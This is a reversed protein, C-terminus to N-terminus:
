RSLFAGIVIGPTVKGTVPNFSLGLGFGTRLKLPPREVKKYVQAGDFKVYPNNTSIDTYHHKKGIRLGLIKARKDYDVVNLDMNVKVDISDGKAHIELPPPNRTRDVFDLSRETITDVRFSGDALWVTDFKPVERVEARVITDIRAKTKVYKTITKPKIELVKAISDVEEKMKEKDLVLQEVQVHENGYKDKWTVAEKKAEDLAKKGKWKNCTSILLILLIIAFLLVRDYTFYKTVKDLISKIRPKLSQM